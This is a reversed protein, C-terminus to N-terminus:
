QSVTIEICSTKICSVTGKERPIRCAFSRCVGDLFGGHHACNDKDEIDDSM